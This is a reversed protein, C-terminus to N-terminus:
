IVVVLHRLHSVGGVGLRMLWQKHPPNHTSYLLLMVSRCRSVVPLGFSFLAWSVNFADRPGCTLKKKEKENMKM